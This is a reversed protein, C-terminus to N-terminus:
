HKTQPLFSDSRQIIPKKNIYIAIVNVHFLLSAPALVSASKFRHEKDLHNTCGSPSPFFILHLHFLFGDHPLCPPPSQPQPIQQCISTVRHKFIHICLHTELVLFNCTGTSTHPIDRANPLPLTIGPCEKNSVRDGTMGPLNYLYSDHGGVVNWKLM